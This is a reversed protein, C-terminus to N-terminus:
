QRVDTTMDDDDLLALVALARAQEYLAKMEAPPQPADDDDAFIATLIDDDNMM